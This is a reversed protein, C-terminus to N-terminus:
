ACLEFDLPTMYGLASHPRITNYYVAIYERIDKIAQERSLYIQNIVWERKLSSVFREVPANDWCNGKRSMSCTIGHQKLIHQYAHSAYQSGHDSHHILDESSGRQGIAMRLARSVLSTRMHTDISWGIIRRSYLDMVIALYLWGAQTWVYTIDSGWARNVDTQIFCRNLVNDAVPYSHQSDTTRKYRSHRAVELGHAQMLRRVRYRGVTFGQQRLAQSLRRSGLSQRSLTFLRKLESILRVETLDIM